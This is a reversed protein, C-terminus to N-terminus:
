RCRRQPEGFGIHTAWEAGDLVRGLLAGCAQEILVDARPVVLQVRNHGEEKFAVLRADPAVALPHTLARPRILAVESCDRADWIQVLTNNTRTTVFRGDPSFGIVHPFFDAAPAESDEARLRCAPGGSRVRWLWIDNVYQSRTAVVRGDPSLAVPKRVRADERRAPAHGVAFGRVPRERRKLDWIRVRQDAAISVLQGSDHEFAIGVVSAGHNLTGLPESGDPHLRHLHVSAGSAVALVQDQRLSAAVAPSELELDIWAGQDRQSARWDWVRIRRGQASILLRGDPGFQLLGSPGGFNVVTGFPGSLPRRLDATQWVEILGGSLLALWAGDRSFAVGLAPVRVKIRKDHPRPKLSWRLLARNGTRDDGVSLLHEGDNSFGVCIAAGYPHIARHLERAPDPSWIRVADVGSRGARAAFLARQPHPVPTVSGGIGAAAIRELRHVDDPALRWNWVVVAQESGENDYEGLLLRDGSQDFALATTYAPIAVSAQPQRTQWHWVTATTKRTDTDYTALGVKDSDASIALAVIPESVPASALREATGRAHDLRLVDVHRKFDAVVLLRADDSLVAHRVPSRPLVSYAAHSEPWIRIPTLTPFSDAFTAATRESSAIALKPETRPSDIAVAQAGATPRGTGDLTLVTKDTSGALVLFRGNRSFTCGEVDRGIPLAEVAPLLALNRNLARIGAWTQRGSLSEIAVLTSLRLAEGSTGRLADARAAHQRALAIDRQELAAQRQEVAVWAAAAVGIMLLVLTAIASFALRMAIKHQRHDESMLADLTLGRIPAVLRAAAARFAPNRLSRQHEQEAWRLDVWIPEAVLRGAVSRPLATTRRWDFDSADDDWVIDGDTLVIYLQAAPKHDLWYTLEKSVWPSAAGTVSALLILNDTVALAAQITDWGRPSAALDTEDRFVRMMRLRYWPKALRALGKQLQAALRHDASHSYSIFADFGDQSRRSGSQKRKSTM